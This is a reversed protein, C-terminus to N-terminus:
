PHRTKKINKTSEPNALAKAVFFNVFISGLLLPIYAINWYGYFFLSGGILYVKSGLIRRQRLLWFYGFFMAPLFVFIFIYSNLLM